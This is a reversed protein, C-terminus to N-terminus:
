ARMGLVFREVGMLDPVIRVGTWGAARWLDSVAKAQGAGVEVAVLGGSALLPPAASALRRYFLLPDAGPVLALRPEHDRVEPELEAWEAEAVYPPNAVVADFPGPLGALLDGQRLRVRAAVGHATANASAVALAAPSLDVADVVLRPERVALAVAIAGSGTGVDVAALRQGPRAQLFELVALVLGETEPRPILVAPSVQLRLGLFEEWGLIYQLPERGARREVMRAYASARDPSLRRGPERYLEARRLDLVEALLWAAEAAANEVGAALLRQRAASLAERVTPTDM